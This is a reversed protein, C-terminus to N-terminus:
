AARERFERDLISALDELEYVVVAVGGRRRVAALFDAQESTLSVGLGKCEVAIFRGDPLCGLVDSIGKVTTAFRGFVFAGRSMLLRLCANVLAGESM